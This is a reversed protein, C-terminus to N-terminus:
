GLLEELIRAVSEADAADQSSIPTGQLIPQDLAHIAIIQPDITPHLVSLPQVTLPYNM